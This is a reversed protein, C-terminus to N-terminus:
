INICNEGIASTYKVFIVIRAEEGSYSVITWREVAWDVLGQNVSDFNRHDCYSNQM